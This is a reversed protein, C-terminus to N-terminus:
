FNVRTTGVKLTVKVAQRGGDLPHSKQNLRPLALQRPLLLTLERTRAAGSFTAGKEDLQVLLKEGAGTRYAETVGDDSFITFSSPLPGPLLLVAEDGALEMPVIAGERYYVPFTDLTVDLKMARGGDLRELTFADYWRGAPLKVM